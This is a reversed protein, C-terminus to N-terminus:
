LTEPEDPEDPEDPEEPKESEEPEEPAAEGDPKLVPPKPAPNALPVPTALGPDVLAGNRPAAFVRALILRAVNAPRPNAKNM